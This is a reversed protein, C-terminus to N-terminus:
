RKEKINAQKRIAEKVRLIHKCDGKDENFVFRPCDCVWKKNERFYRVIYYKDETSSKVKFERIKNNKEKVLM